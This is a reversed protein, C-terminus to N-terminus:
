KSIWSIKVKGHGTNVGTSMSGNTVGGIYGSGGGAPKLYDSGNQYTKGGWYGGGAGSSSGGSVSYGSQGQGKRYGSTQTGGLASGYGSTGSDGGGSGGVYKTLIVSGDGGGGGAVIIRDDLSSGYRRIDTAGGGSGHNSNGQARYGQWGAGGGNYGGDMWGTDAGNVGMSGRGGVYVDLVEGKKLSVIGDAYGGLGGGNPGNGQAGWVYLYYRGTLPVTYKYNGYTTQQWIKQAPELPEISIKKEVWDSWLGCDDKVRLKITQIGTTNFVENNNQWETDVISCGDKDSFTYRYTIKEGIDYEDDLVINAVPPNNFSNEIFMINNAFVNFQKSKIEEGSIRYATEISNPTLGINIPTITSDGSKLYLDLKNIIKHNSKINVFLDNNALLYKNSTISITNSAYANNGILMFGLVTGIVYKTIKKM